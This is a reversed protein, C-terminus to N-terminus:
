VTESAALECALIGGGPGTGIIIIDYHTSM